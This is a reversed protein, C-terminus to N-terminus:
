SKSGLNCVYDPQGMQLREAIWPNKAATEKQLRTAIHEAGKPATM